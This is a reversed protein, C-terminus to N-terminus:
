FKFALKKIDVAQGAIVYFVEDAAEGFMQNIVGSIDRFERGTTNTPVVGSGIDNSVFICSKGTNRAAIILKALGKTAYVLKDADKEDEPVSADNYLFNSLYVTLCDFLIVDASEAAKNIIDTANYPAEYNIWRDSKRRLQHKEVRHAMEVDLIEATAIYAVKAGRHLALQEAFKSKGSSSGGLVLTLKEQM